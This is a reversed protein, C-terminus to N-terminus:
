PGRGASPRRRRTGVVVIVLGRRAVFARPMSLLMVVRHTHRLALDGMGPLPIPARVLGERQGLELLARVAVRRLAGVAGARGAAVVAAPRDELQLLGLVLGRGSGSCPRGIAPQVNGRDLSADRLPTRIATSAM